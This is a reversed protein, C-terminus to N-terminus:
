NKQKQLAQKIAQSIKEYSADEVKVGDVFLSPTSIRGGLLEAGYKTNKVIQIRHAEQQICDKLNDLRIAPSAAKAFEVLREETVWDKHETPQNKYLYNLYTFFLDSNPYGEDQNYVCLLAVAAPMSNPLFSVPIVTYTVKNTDIFAEKIRPFVENNYRKSDSCKPELLAVVHVRAKPYGITPQGETNIALAEQAQLSLGSFIAAVGLLSYIFNKM